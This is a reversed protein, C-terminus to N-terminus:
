MRALRSRRRFGCRIRRSWEMSTRPNIELGQPRGIWGIPAASWEFPERRRCKQFM